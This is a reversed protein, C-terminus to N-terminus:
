PNLSEKKKAVAKSYNFMTKVPQGPDEGPNLKLPVEWTGMQRIWEPTNMNNRRLAPEYEMAWLLTPDGEKRTGPASCLHALMRSGEPMGRLIVDPRLHPRDRLAEDLASRRSNPPIKSSSHLAFETRAGKLLFEYCKRLRAKVHSIPATNTFHFEKGRGARKFKENSVTIEHSKAGLSTIRYLPAKAQDPRPELCSGPRILLLADSLAIDRHEVRELDLLNLKVEHASPLTEKRVAALKGIPHSTFMHHLLHLSRSSAQYSAKMRRFHHTQDLTRRGRQFM